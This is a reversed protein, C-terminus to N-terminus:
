AIDDKGDIKDIVDAKLKAVLSDIFPGIVAGVNGGKEAAYYKAYPKVIKDVTAMATSEAIELGAQKLDPKQVTQQTESM